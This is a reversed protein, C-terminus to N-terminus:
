RSLPILLTVSFGGRSECKLMGGMRQMLENAIYLGLGSGDKGASNSKGRYYKETIHTLEEESIGSGHDAIEMALYGGSFAYHVDIPTGAYKYSNSIINGIVQSLRGTDACILCEPIAEARVLGRSDHEKLLTQVVSSPSDQCHLQMEGLENLSATLLDDALVHIQEAKRDIDSIKGRLYPDDTRVALLECILRIGTVPTKIDHSLSAALEKERQKLAAERGRSERLAERMIDFSETFSGFLNDQEMLLPDDLDGQAIRVAFRQMNCFPKVIRRRLYLGIGVLLLFVFGCVASATLLLQKRMRSYTNLLPDPVAVCGLYTRGETVPLCLWGERVSEQQTRIEAPAGASAAILQGDSQFILMDTDYQSIAKEPADMHAKVTQVIDNLLINDRYQQKQGTLVATLLICVAFVVAAAALFRRYSKM